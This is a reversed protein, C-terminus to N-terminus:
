KKKRMTLGFLGLGVLVAAIIAGAMRGDLGGTQPYKELQGTKPKTKSAPANTPATTPAVGEPADKMYVKTVTGDTRVTFDISEAMKYGYPATVETLRYTRGPVLGYVYHPSTGSTWSDVITGESLDEVTLEAGPLEAGTTADQKSISATGEGNETPEDMMVIRTATGDPRIQFDISEAEEYGHPATTEILTYWRGPVLGSVYHPSTGSTWSDVTEGLDRDVLELKAGPLERGTTIDQKSIEATGTEMPEYAVQFSSDYYEWSWETSSYESSETSWESSAESAQLSFPYSSINGAEDKAYITYDGPVLDTLVGGGIPTASEFADKGQAGSIIRTDAVSFGDSATYHVTYTGDAEQEISTLNIEPPLDDITTVPVVAALRTGDQALAFLTYEGNESVTIEAGGGSGVPSASDYASQDYAGKLYRFEAAEEGELSWYLTTDGGSSESKSYSLSAAFATLSFVAVLMVSVFAATLYRLKKM